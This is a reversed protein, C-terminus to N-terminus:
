GGGKCHVWGASGVAVHQFLNVRSYWFPVNPSFQNFLCVFLVLRLNCSLLRNHKVYNARVPLLNGLRLKDSLNM